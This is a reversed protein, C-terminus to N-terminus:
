KIKISAPDHHPKPYKLKMAELANLLIDAVIVDRYWKNNAPVVYWPAEKSSCKEFVAEFAKMYTPWNAREPLDGPNFKWRKEPTDLREQLRQKQEDKDIHLYIKIVRTNAAQLGKEFANILEYRESWVPKPVLDKVRVVLVDEYHSRNFVAIMGKGPTHPHIRWLFDHELEQPTPAKFSTVKVGQPDIGSFVNGICGDKGGADMAQFIVLLSHTGSAYLVEQLTALKEKQKELLKKAAAKGTDDDKFPGTDSPNIKSFKFKKGVRYEQSPLKTM